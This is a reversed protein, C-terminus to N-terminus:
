GNVGVNLGSDRWKTEWVATVRGGQCLKRQYSQESNSMLNM